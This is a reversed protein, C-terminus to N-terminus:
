DNEYLVGRLSLGLATTYKLSEELSLKLAKKQNEPLINIWPNGLEVPLNLKKALFDSLGKLNAGGGCLYVKAVGKGNPPLHEHSAHTQYFTLYKKIQETLDTLAPIIAEIKIGQERKLREAEKLNVKLNKSILETLIQSSVPLSTTFRVSYGSFIIFSTKKAGFDILLLPVKSKGNKILARAIALSEIELALPLLKAEKFCFLYSDVIEKLSAAILVDCHDLHDYIPLIEEFDLYVKEVPLPIYNEAQYYIARKLEERKMKPMQIVELFSKEEPLSAILYKTKLKEGKVEKVAKKIIEILTKKDKIEGEKIVGEEIKTEGFSALDFFKKSKKLKVIKLSSDSIDLGFAEPKLTLFNM